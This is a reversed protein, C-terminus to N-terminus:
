LGTEESAAKEKDRIEQELMDTLLNYDLYQIGYHGDHIHDALKSNYYLGMAQELPINKRKSLCFIIDEELHERYFNEFERDTM